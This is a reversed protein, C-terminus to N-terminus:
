DDNNSTQLKKLKRFRGISHLYVREPKKVNVQGNAESEAMEQSTEPGSNNVAPMTIPVFTTTAYELLSEDCTNNKIHKNKM